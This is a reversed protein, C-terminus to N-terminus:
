LFLRGGGFVAVGVVLHCLLLRIDPLHHLGLHFVMRVLLRWRVGYFLALKADIICLHKIIFFGIQQAFEYVRLSFYGRAPFRSCASRALALERKGYFVGAM